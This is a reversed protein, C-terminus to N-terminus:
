PAACVPATAGATAAANVNPSGAPADSRDSQDLLGLIRELLAHPLSALTPPAAQASPAAEAGPTAMCSAPLPCILAATRVPAGTLHPGAAAVDIMGALWGGPRPMAEMLAMLAASCGGQGGHERPAATCAQQLPDGCM